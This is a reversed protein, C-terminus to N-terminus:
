NQGGNGTTLIVGNAGVAAGTQLTAMHVDALTGKPVASPVARRQWTAGGNTTMLIALRGGVAIARTADFMDAGALDVAPGIGFGATAIPAGTRGVVDRTTTSDRHQDIDIQEHWDADVLVRGQQLRVSSYHKSARFTRRSFDGRM